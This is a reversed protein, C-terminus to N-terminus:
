NNLRLYIYLEAYKHHAAISLNRSTIFSFIDCVQRM